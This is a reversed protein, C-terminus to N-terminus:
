FSKNEFQFCNIHKKLDTLTQSKLIEWINREPIDKKFLDTTIHQTIERDNTIQNIRDTILGDEINEILLSSGAISDNIEFSKDTICIFKYNANRFQILDNVNNSYHIKEISTDTIKIDNRQIIILHYQEDVFPNTSFKEFIEALNIRHNKLIYREIEKTQFIRNKILELLNTM